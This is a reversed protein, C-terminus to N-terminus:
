VSEVFLKLDNQHQGLDAAEPLGAFPDEGTVEANDVAAQVMRRIGEPTLDSTYASGSRQGVLVRLGASRSTAEQLKEIDGLRVSVSFEEGEALTCEADTAGLELALKVVDQTMELPNM